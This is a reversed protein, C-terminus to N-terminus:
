CLTIGKDFAQLKRYHPETKELEAPAGDMKVMGNEIFVVRDMNNVGQLHHTIMILTKDKLNEFFTDLLERETFPDLGVTPEDLIVIPTDQLLVRALAIRHREGGSFRMGAEDVLTNLGEPLRQVMAKLGVSDLVDWAEEETATQKGIRINDFLTMNFLYTQQQIVGIYHAIEDGFQCTPIENLTASGSLPALDGRLLAALTSKGAGSRGLIALKQGSPITLCFNNLVTRDNGPYAFVVEDIKLIFPSKLPAISSRSPEEKHPIDNLRKISDAYINTETAAESLPAFADVLPFLCLTFAAIWNGLGGWSGGFYSGSWMLLAVAIVAFVIQTVLDQRRTFRNLKADAERMTGELAKHRDLYEKSRGAFIWDSVGLVNDTLEAYLENKILKRKTQRAGNVLVSVLPVIFVTIGLLLLMVLAFWLSFFGLAIIIVTYLMWAILTPFITRLYLNQLYGIDEALMGLIDGTRHSRRLFIADKELVGYLKKRLGSTMRLVWNHSTLREAYQVIPRSLGIVRALLIPMSIAVVSDPMEAARSILFGSDFMLAGALVFALLGLFLALVLAGRYQKLFPKVWTDGKLNLRGSM